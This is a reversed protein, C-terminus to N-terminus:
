FFPGIACMFPYLYKSWSRKSGFFFVANEMVDSPVEKWNNRRHLVSLSIFVVRKRPKSESKKTTSKKAFTIKNDSLYKVVKPACLDDIPEGNLLRNRPCNTTLTSM